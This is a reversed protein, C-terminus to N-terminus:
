SEAEASGERSSFLDSKLERPILVRLAKERVAFHAQTKQEAPEGDSQIPLPEQGEFLAESAQFHHVGPADVHKGRIVQMAHPVADIFSAGEFLWFDLLGDDIKAEPALEVFGGAYARVNSAVAILFKGEIEYNSARVSLHVGEWEFSELMALAAYHPIALAKEWWKRPEIRRVIEADLGIGAWLLFERNNCIGMDAWRYTGESLLLAADELAFWNLWDLHRMGIEKAWVNATGSPLVGLATSSGALVSAVLGVSGDGGAVFVAQDEREVAQRALARMHDQDSTEFPTVNWGGEALVSLVRSVFPKAPFRGASPNYLLTADSM